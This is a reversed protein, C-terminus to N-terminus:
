GCSLSYLDPWGFPSTGVCAPYLAMYCASVLEQGHNSCSDVSYCHWNWTLRKQFKCTQTMLIWWFHAAQRDRRYIGNTGPKDTSNVPVVAHANADHNTANYGGLANANLLYLSGEKGGVFLYEDNLVPVPVASGFDLDNDDLFSQDSPTWFDKVQKCVGLLDAMTIGTCHEAAKGWCAPGCSASQEPSTSSMNNLSSHIPGSAQLLSSRVALDPLSLRLVSDGYQNMSPDYGGNGTAVYMNDNFIVLGAGHQKENLDSRCLLCCM